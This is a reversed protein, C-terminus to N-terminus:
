EVIVTLNAAASTNGAEDRAIARIEVPGKPLTNCDITLNSAPGLVTAALSGGVFVDINVAQTSAVDQGVLALEFSDHVTTNPPPSTIGVTPPTGDLRIAIESTTSNGAADRAIVVAKGDGEPLDKASFAVRSVDWAKGITAPYARPFEYTMTKGGFTMELSGLVFADRVWFAIQGEVGGKSSSVTARELQITPPSLDVVLDHVERRAKGNDIDRVEFALTGFGEGLERGTFSITARTGSFSRWPVNNFSAQISALAHEDTATVTVRGDPGLPPWAPIDIEEIHPASKTSTSATAPARGPMEDVDPPDWTTHWCGATALIPLLRAVHMWSWRSM